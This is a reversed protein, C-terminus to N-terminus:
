TLRRAQVMYVPEAFFFRGARDASELEARWRELEGCTVHHRSLNRRLTWVIDRVRNAALGDLRASTEIHVATETIRLTPCRSVMGVLRRGLHADLHQSGDAELSAYAHRIHSTLDSSGADITLAGFDTHSFVARGHEGLVRGAEALLIVPYELFELMNHSVIGDFSRDTFTLALDLDACRLLTRGPLSALRAEAATLFEANRDIGVLRAKPVFRALEALQEGRGCGLDLIRWGQKPRLLDVIRRHLGPRTSQLM